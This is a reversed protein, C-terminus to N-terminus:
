HTRTPRKARHFLHDLSRGYYRLVMRDRVRILQRERVLVGRAELAGV